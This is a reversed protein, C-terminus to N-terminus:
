FVSDYKYIYNYIIKLIFQGFFCKISEEIIKVGDLPQFNSLNTIEMKQHFAPCSNKKGYTCVTGYATCSRDM